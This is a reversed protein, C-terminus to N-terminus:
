AADGSQTRQMVVLKHRVHLLIAAHIAVAAILGLVHSSLSGGGAHNVAILTFTGLPLFIVVATILGPNYRRFIIAHVIHVVANVLALYVALLAWGLNISVAGYLSV